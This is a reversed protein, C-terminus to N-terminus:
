KLTQCFYLLKLNQLEKMEVMRRRGTSHDKTNMSLKVVELYLKTMNVEGQTHGVRIFEM